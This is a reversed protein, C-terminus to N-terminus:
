NHQLGGPTGAPTPTPTPYACTNVDSTPVYSTTVANGDVCIRSFTKYHTGVTQGQPCGYNQVADSMQGGSGSVTGNVDSCNMVARTGLDSGNPTYSTPVPQPNPNQETVTTGGAVTRSSDRVGCNSSNAFVGAAGVGGGSTACTSLSPLYNAPKACASSGPTKGFKLIPSEYEPSGSSCASDGQQPLGGCTAKQKDYDIGVVFAGNAACSFDIKTQGAIAAGAIRIKSTRNALNGMSKVNGHFQTEVDFEVYDCRTSNPCHVKYTTVRKVPCNTTCTNAQLDLGGTLDPVTIQVPASSTSCNTGKGALCDQINQPLLLRQATTEGTRSNKYNSVNQLGLMHMQDLMGQVMVRQESNKLNVVGSTLGVVVVISVALGALVGALSVGKQNLVFRAGVTGGNALDRFYKCM